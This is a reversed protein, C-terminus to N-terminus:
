GNDKGGERLVRNVVEGFGQSEWLDRYKDDYLGAAVFYRILPIALDDNLRKRHPSYLVAELLKEHDQFAEHKIGIREFCETNTVGQDILQRLYVPTMERAHLQFEPDANALSMIMSQGWKIHRTEEKWHERVVAKALPHVYDADVDLRQYLDALWEIVMTLYVAMLPYEGTGANDDYFTRMFEPAQYLESGFYRIAKDFVITHVIEEKVFHKMYEEVYPLNRFGGNNIVRMYYESVLGEFHIFGSWWTVVEEKSLRERENESALDWYPTGYISVRERKRLVPNLTVADDWPHDKSTSMSRKESAAILRKTVNALGKQEQQPANVYSNM